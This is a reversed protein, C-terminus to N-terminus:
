ESSEVRAPGFNHAEPHLTADNRHKSLWATIDEPTTVQKQLVALLLDQTLVTNFPEGYALPTTQGAMKILFPVRRDLKGDLVKADRFWHDSSVVVTTGSWNGADEMARRLEGLTRDALALSDQYGSVSANALDFQGSRRDYTHPTHPPQLHLLSVGISSDAVVSRAAALTRNYNRVRKLTPLSRGFPSYISTEFLSRLQNVLQADFEGGMSNAVREIDSWYCSSLDQNLVRCYPHYWGVLATNFGLSRARSFINPQSRWLVPSKSDTYTIDLESGDIVAARRIPRGVILSPLSVLTASSSPYARTAYVSSNRLRDLEPLRLDPHRGDFALRQDMEDFVLWVVRARTRDGNALRPALPKDAFPRPDYKYAAWLAPLVTMPVFPVLMLLGTIVARYIRSPWVIIAVLALVAAAAVIALVGTEGVIRILPGRLYPVYQSLVERLANLPILLLVLFCFRAIGASRGRLRSILTILVFFLISLLLVNVLAAFYQAPTPPLKMLYSDQRTYALIEKWRRLLCLNAVSVSAGLQTWLDSRFAAKRAPPVPEALPSVSSHAGLSPNGIEPQVCTRSFFTPSQGRFPIM